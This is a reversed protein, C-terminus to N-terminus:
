LSQSPLFHHFEEPLGDKREMGSASAWGTRGRSVVCAVGDHVEKDTKMEDSSDDTSSERLKARCM